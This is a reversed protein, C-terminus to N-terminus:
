DGARTSVALTDFIDRIELVREVFDPERLMEKPPHTPPPVEMERIITGPASSFVYVRDGLYLAEEISHTVFFVTAQAERWLTVILEQMHLRTTPDLAGFPEDMLIIRPALILTRAIAVRQRMGGSLEGPYKRADRDVNLGVKAIWTRARERGEASPVGRCELGFGVNDEVTRNDFSTYDQFVMGRDAGPGAVPANAVHVEGESTPHHPPLGAILRLVTSKGCGSPGLITVFEGTGPLDPVTFTVDRIVTLDGFRKTVNRFEVINPLVDTM